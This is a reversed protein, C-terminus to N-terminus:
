KNYLGLKKLRSILTTPKIELLDAAGREGYIKWNTKDLVQLMNEKEIDRIEAETLLRRELPDTEQSARGEQPSTSLLGDIIKSPDATITIREVINQLERINGPWSYALLDDIRGPSLRVAPRNFKKINMKLFHDVLLPIDERRERLPPVELPFVNLRYYLDERFAGSKIDDKLRRNTASIIRVNVNRVTDEGIRQFEGEQLVRLLKSQLTIPIEAIEDLFLTGKDAAQFYGNRDKVAGTFAGRSHGFFESEFLESPIAPCNIKIMAREKRASHNHIERAIMEKGVGSEGFILVNADTPGVMRIMERINEIGKSKGIIGNFASVDNVEKRLYANELEMQYKLNAVLEFARANAISYALHDAVMRLMDLAGEDIRDRAFISLVGLTEGHYILPQGVFGLLNERVAWDRDALWEEDHTLHPIEIPKGTKAIMGVKRIGIPFRRFNGETHNWDLNPDVISKGASAKLHLCNEANQCHITYQCQTCIDGPSILWIRALAVNSSSALTDVTRRLVDDVSRLQALELLLHKLKVFGIITMVEGENVAV